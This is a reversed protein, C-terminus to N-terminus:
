LMLAAFGSVVMSLFLSANQAGSDTNNRACLFNQCSGSACLMSYQPECVTGDAFGETSVPMGTTQAAQLLSRIRAEYSYTENSISHADIGEKRDLLDPAFIEETDFGAYVANNEDEGLLIYHGYHVSGSVFTPSFPVPDFAVVDEDDDESKSNVFRYFRESPVLDCNPDAAPPM